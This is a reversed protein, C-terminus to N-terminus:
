PSSDPVRLVIANFRWGFGVVKPGDWRPTGDQYGTHRYWKLNTEPDVAYIVGDGGGAIHTMTHWDVGVDEPGDWSASGDRFGAHRYWKLIGGNTVAYIIGDGTSFVTKFDGWGNGVTRPGEWANTGDKYGTHGYWRLNGSADIAYLVVKSGDGVQMPFVLKFQHWDSSGVTASTWDPACTAWGNHKYWLLQGDRTIAYTVGAAAFVQKFDGWGSGVVVGRDDPWAISGDAYGEHRYCKLTGDSAIAYLNAAAGATGAAPGPPAAPGSTLGAVSAWHEAGLQDLYHITDGVSCTGLAVCRTLDSSETQAFTDKISVFVMKGNGDAVLWATRGIQDGADTYRLRLSQYITAQDKQTMPRAEVVFWRGSLRVQQWMDFKTDLVHIISSRTPPGSASQKVMFYPNDSQASPVEVPNLCPVVKDDRVTLNPNGVSNCPHVPTPLTMDIFHAYLMVAGHRDDLMARLDTAKRPANVILSTIKVPLDASEFVTIGQLVGVTVALIVVAAVSTIASAGVAGAVTAGLTAASAAATGSTTTVAAAFPFISSTVAAAAAPAVSATVVGGTVSAAVALGAGALALPYAATAGARALDGMDQFQGAQNHAAAAGWAVFQDYTPTPPNCGLLSSCPAFCLPHNLGDYDGTHPSPPRYTCFGHGSNPNRPVVWRTLLDRVQAETHNSDMLQEYESLSIGAWKVYERGTARAVQVSQDNVLSLMWAVIQRQDETRSAAPAKIAEVIMLWGKAIVDDRAWGRVRELDCPDLGHERIVAAVAAKELDVVAPFTDAARPTFVAPTFIGLSARPDLPGLIDPAPQLTPQLAALPGIITPGEGNSVPATQESPQLQQGSSQPQQHDCTVQAPALSALRSAEAAPSAAPEAVAAAGIVTADPVVTALV